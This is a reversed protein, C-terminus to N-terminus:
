NDRLQSFTWSLQSSFTAMVIGLFSYSRELTIRYGLCCNSSDELDQM